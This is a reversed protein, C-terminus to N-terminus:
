RRANNVTTNIHKIVRLDYILSVALLFLFTFGMSVRHFIPIPTAEIGHLCNAYSFAAPDDMFVGYLERSGEYMGLFILCVSIIGFHRSEDSITYQTSKIM